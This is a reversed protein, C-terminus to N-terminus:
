KTLHADLTIEVAALAKSVPCGAKTDAALKQFEADSIDPVNAASSLGIKVIGFGGDVQQLDVKAVTEIFRPAYGAKTLGAALAMSFCGAHAAAILEEPNTGPDGGFRTGFSYKGNFTGSDLTIRGSGQPFTGEWVATAKRIPM